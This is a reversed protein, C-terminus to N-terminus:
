LGFIPLTVHSPISASKEILGWMLSKGLYSIGLITSQKPTNTIEAHLRYEGTYPIPGWLPTLPNTKLLIPQLYYPNFPKKNNSFRITDGVALIFQIPFLFTFLLVITRKTM